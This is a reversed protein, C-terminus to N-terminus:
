WDWLRGKYRKKLRATIGADLPQYISTVKPPLVFISVQPHKLGCHAGCDDVFLVCPIRTRARAAPSPVTNFWKDYVECDMWVLRQSFLPLPCLARPPKFCLSVAAKGIFAVSIRHYGTANVALVLTVRYKAKMEKSGRARRRSVASIYTRNSLCRFYLGTEDMNYIREPEHTSLQERIEAMRHRSSEVDATSSRGTGWLCINVLNQRKARQRMFRKSAYFGTERLRSSIKEARQRLLVMTLPLSTTAHFTTDGWGVSVSLSVQGASPVWGCVRARSEGPSV